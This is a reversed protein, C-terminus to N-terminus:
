LKFFICEINKYLNNILSNIINNEVESIITKLSIIVEEITNYFRKRIKRKILSFLTEIPNLMPSYSPLLLINILKELKPLLKNKHIAANDFVLVYKKGLLNNIKIM